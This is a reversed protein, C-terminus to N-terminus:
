AEHRWNHGLGRRERSDCRAGDVRLRKDTRDRVSDTRDRITM